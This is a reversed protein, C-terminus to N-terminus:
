KEPVMKIIECELWMWQEREPTGPGEARKGRGWEWGAGGELCGRGGERLSMRSKRASGMALPPNMGQQARDGGRTGPTM